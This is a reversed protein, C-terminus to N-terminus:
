IDNMISYFRFSFIKEMNKIVTNIHCISGLQTAWVLHM